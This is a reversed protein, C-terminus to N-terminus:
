TTPEKHLPPPQTGALWHRGLTTISLARSDVRHVGRGRVAGHKVIAGFAALDYLINEATRWAVVETTVHDVMEDWTPKRGEDNAETIYGLIAAVTTPHRYTIPDRRPREVDDETDPETTM